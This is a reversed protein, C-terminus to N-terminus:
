PRAKVATDLRRHLLSVLTLLDLADGEEIKWTIKPAHGTTNRFTGFMGKLLNMLGTHESRETETGLSNFALMPLGRSTGFAEDVLATGDTQLGSLKRIKDAVSKTAEFVAHFYNEQLLEERCFRLVDSHVHRRVLEARLRGARDQAETLTRAVAVQRMKGDEGVQMGAFALAINVQERLNEFYEPSSRFRAPSLAREIFAVVCNGAHDQAQRVSLAERIRDRKTIPGPDSYGLDSLLRGIVSGTLGSATDGLAEALAELHDPAFPPITM